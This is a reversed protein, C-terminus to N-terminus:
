HPGIQYAFTAGPVTINVGDSIIYGGPITHSVGTADVVVYSGFVYWAGAPVVANLALSLQTGFKGYQTPAAPTGLANNPALFVVGGSM